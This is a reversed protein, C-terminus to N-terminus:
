KGEGTKPLSRQEPRSDHRARTADHLFAVLKEVPQEMETYSDHSGAIVLLSVRDDHHSAYIEHAEGLPVTGDESGHVLLVPCSLSRITQCPANATCGVAHALDEAFRPLAAFDDDDSRGHCRAAFFRLAYGAAHLPAALPLMM